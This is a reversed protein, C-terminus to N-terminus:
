LEMKHILFIWLWSALEETMVGSGFGAGRWGGIVAWHIGGGRGFGTESRKAWEDSVCHM